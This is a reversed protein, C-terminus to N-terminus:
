KSQPEDDASSLPALKQDGPVKAFRAATGASGPHDNEAVYKWAVSIPPLLWAVASVSGSKRRVVVSVTRSSASMLVFISRAIRM